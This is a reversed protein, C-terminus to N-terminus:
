RVGLEYLQGALAYAGESSTLLAIGEEEARAITEEEPAFGGAILVASLGHLAAVAVINPHTQITIWLQGAKGQAMVHSLLDSVQAGTVETELVDEGAAVGLGLVQVAHAVTIRESM